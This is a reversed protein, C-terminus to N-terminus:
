ADGDDARRGSAGSPPGLPSERPARDSQLAIIIPVLVTAVIGAAFGNNYLNLGGHVVGVSLVASSHLFGAAIGWGWGFRGAIPALNTGFLAALLISPDALNWPKALSGLVVGSIIPVLNKPHKGFAAFGMLSLMAGIVPGNLDGGVALVYALGIAGSLAMNILTAGFGGVAIFDSPAQGSERMIRALGSPAERDLLLGIALLTALVFGVFGGLLLNNGTTWVLVPDPVFGYSKYLAVILIGVLGAAFGMNYLAFGIHAKFVQAAVPPLIFGILVGTGIGLPVAIGVPLVSSFVIESTVPALATAFFAANIHTAFPQGKFRSYLAVGLVIFWINFLNKGFLGFGLLLFLAAVAAGTMRAGVLAYVLCASLTLLGANVFAAGMGGVGFYDTLLTDRSTMIAVLGEGIATPSSVLFGFVVFLTAYGSILLLILRDATERAPRTPENM